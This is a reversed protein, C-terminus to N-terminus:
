KSLSLKSHCADCLVRVINGNRIIGFSSCSECINSSLGEALAIAGNIFPTHQNAYVRLTGFKEKVQVAYISPQLESPVDYNIHHEIVQFLHSLVNFWTDSCYIGDLKSLFKPALAKLKNTNERNM